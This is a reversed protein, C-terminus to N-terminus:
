PVAADLSFAAAVADFTAARPHGAAPLASDQPRLLQCTHWGSSAAADLEAGVDSLFLMKEGPLGVARAIARYSAAQRKPGVRTDFFGSFLGTLDGEQTHRFLLKQAAESGSSYVYLRVGAAHWARLSPAVDAYLEGHLAGSAYGEGWILGQLTKLPTIKADTDMWSLLTALEPAGPALHRVEALAAAIEPETGRQALFDPLRARAYPFLVDHVFSIRTTTGEIDTVVAAPPSM